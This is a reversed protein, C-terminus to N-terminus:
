KCCLMHHWTVLPHGLPCTTPQHSSTCPHTASWSCPWYWCMGFAQLHTGQRTYGLGSPTQPRRGDRVHMTILSNRSNEIMSLKSGRTSLCPNLEDSDMRKFGAVIDIVYLGNPWTATTLSPQLEDALTESLTDPLSSSSSAPSLLRPTRLQHLPPLPSVSHGSWPYPYSPRFDFVGYETTHCWGCGRTLGPRRKPIATQQWIWIDVSRMQVEPGWIRDSGICLDTEM